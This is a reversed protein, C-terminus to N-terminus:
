IADQCIAVLQAPRYGEIYKFVQTFPHQLLLIKVTLPQQLTERLRHPTHTALCTLPCSLNHNIVIKLTSM